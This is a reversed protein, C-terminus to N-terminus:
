DNKIKKYKDIKKLYRQLGDSHIVWRDIRNDYYGIRNIGEFFCIVMNKKFKKM